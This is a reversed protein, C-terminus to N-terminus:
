KIEMEATERDAMTAHVDLGNVTAHIATNGKDDTSVTNVTGIVEDIVKETDAKIQEIPKNEEQIKQALVDMAVHKAVERKLTLMLETARDAIVKPSRNWWPLTRIAFDAMQNFQHKIEAHKGAEFQMREIELQQKKMQVERSQNALIENQQRVTETQKAAIQRLEAFSKEQGM